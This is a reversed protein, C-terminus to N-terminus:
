LQLTKILLTESVCFTDNESIYNHLHKMKDGHVNVLFRRYAHYRRPVAPPSMFIVLATEARLLKCDPCLCISVPFQSIFYFTVNRSLSTTVFVFQHPSPLHRIASVTATNSESSCTPNQWAPIHLLHYSILMLCPSYVITFRNM